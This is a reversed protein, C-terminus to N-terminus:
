GCHIDYTKDDENPCRTICMWQIWACNIYPLYRFVEVQTVSVRLTTGSSYKVKSINLSSSPSQGKHSNGSFSFCWAFKTLKMEVGTWSSYKIPAQMYMYKLKLKYWQVVGPRLLLMRHWTHGYYYLQLGAKLCLKLLTDAIYHHHCDCSTVLLIPNAIYCASCLFVMLSSVLENNNRLLIFM